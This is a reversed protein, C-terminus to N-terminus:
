LDNEQLVVKWSNIYIYTSIWRDGKDLFFVVDYKDQRDLYEQDTMNRNHYGKVLLAYDILPVSLVQQKNKNYVTLKMDQGKVMRATSLGAVCASVQARSPAALSAEPYEVGATGAVKYHAYYSMQEDDILDNKFDMKGNKDTVVFTFDDKNVPEGSLHQLVVNVENTDKVLPVTYVHEGQEDPFEQNHLIGHYLRDLPYNIFAEETNFPNYSRGLTCTLDAHHDVTPIEFHSLHGDGCWAILKYNGPAVNVEMEYGDAKLKEGSETKQWVVLGSEENIVYLTVANVEQPFADAFKMNMDYRFRVKYTPDCDGEDEYIFGNCGCLAVGALCPIIIRDRLCTLIKNLKM